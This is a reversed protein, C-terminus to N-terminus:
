SCEADRWGRVIDRAAGLDGKTDIVVGFIQTNLYGAHCLQAAIRDAPLSEARKTIEQIISAASAKDIQSGAYVGVVASGTMSFLTTAHGDEEAALYDSLATAAAMIMAVDASGKNHQMIEIEATQNRLNFPSKTDNTTAGVSAPVLLQRKALKASSAGEALCGRMAFLTDPGDVDYYVNVDLVVTKNCTDLERLDHYATWESKDQSCPFPCRAEVSFPDFKQALVQISLHVFSTFLTFLTMAFKSSGSSRRQHPYGCPPDMVDLFSQNNLSQATPPHITNMFVKSQGV